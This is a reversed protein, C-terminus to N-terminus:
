DPCSAPTATGMAEEYLRITERLFREESFRSLSRTRGVSGLRAAVLPHDALFRLRSALRRSDRPPCLYGTVGDEVIEANGGSQSAVCPLGCAMYEMLANSCGEAHYRPDTMLVGIDASCIHHLVELSPQPFAVCGQEVLDAAERMLEKRDPGDGISLFLWRDADSEALTRAAKMFTLYDKDREMRAAMVVITRGNAADPKQCHLNKLRRDDFSNYIVQGRPLGVGLARLGAESNAVVRTAFSLGLKYKHVRRLWVKGDRMRGDVLPIGLLRCPIASAVPSMWGFPTHVIDPRWRAIERWLRLGPLADFRWSRRCVTVHVGNQELVERYPGDSWSWVRRDWEPPLYRALLVLQRQAGGNALSDTVLLLKPCM